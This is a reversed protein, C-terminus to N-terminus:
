TAKTARTAKTAQTAKSAKPDKTAKTSKNTTTAMTVKNAKNAKFVKSVNQEMRREVLCVPLMSDSSWPWPNYFHDYYAIYEYKNNPGSTNWHKFWM